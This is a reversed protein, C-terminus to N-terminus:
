FARRINSPKNLEEAFEGTTPIYTGRRLACKEEVFITEKKESKKNMEKTMLNKQSDTSRESEQTEQTDTYCGRDAKQSTVSIKLNVSSIQEGNEWDFAEIAFSFEDAKRQLKIGRTVLRLLGDQIAMRRYRSVTMPECCLITAIKRCPLLISGSVNRQLNGALSVFAAYGASYCRYPSLPLKAAMWQATEVAARPWKIRAWTDIFEARADDSEPFLTRWADETMPAWSNLTRQVVEAAELGDLSELDPHAKARRVFTFMPTRFRRGPSSEQFTDRNLQWAEHLYEALSCRIPSSVLSSGAHHQDGETQRPCVALNDAGAM